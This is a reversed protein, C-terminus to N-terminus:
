KIINNIRAIYMEMQMTSLSNFNKCKSKTFFYSVNKTDNTKQKNIYKNKKRLFYFTVYLKKDTQPM